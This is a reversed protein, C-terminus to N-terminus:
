KGHTIRIIEANKANIIIMFTGGLYDEPLTGSIVWYNKILYNEYPKQKEINKKGYIKFLIPEAIAMAIISDSIVLDKKNIVNHLNKDKLTSNLEDEAYKKGLHSHKEQASSHLCFIFFIFLLNKKM